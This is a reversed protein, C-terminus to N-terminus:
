VFTIRRRSSSQASTTLSSTKSKMQKKEKRWRKLAEMREKQLARICKEASPPTWIKNEMVKSGQKQCHSPVKKSSDDATKVLLPIMPPLSAPTKNLNKNTQEEFPNRLSRPLTLPSIPDQEVPASGNELQSKVNSNECYQRPSRQQHNSTAVKRDISNIQLEITKGLFVSLQKEREAPSLKKGSRSHQVKPNDVPSSNKSLDKKKKKSLENSLPSVLKKRNEKSNKSKGSSQSSSQSKEPITPFGVHKKRAFLGCGDRCEFYKVGDVTGNNKGSGESDGTLCVGVWDDHQSCFKVDGLYAITGHALPYEKRRVLVSAGIKWRNKKTTKHLSSSASSSSTSRTRVEKLKTVKAVLKTSTPGTM